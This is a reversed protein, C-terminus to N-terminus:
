DRTRGLLVPRVIANWEEYASASLHLEDDLFARPRPDGNEDLLCTAVDIYHVRPRDSAYAAVRRNVDRMVPWRDWRSPSPKVSLYYIDVGPSRDHVEEAFRIFGDTAERASAGHAVDNDGCYYVIASPEYPFVIRDMVRLVDGTVSGGFGRNLVPVPAMAADLDPWMRISSSGIFLVRGPGPPNVADASEFARVEGEHNWDADPTERAMGGPGACGALWGVMAILLVFRPM